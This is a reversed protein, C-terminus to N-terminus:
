VAAAEDFNFVTLAASLFSITIITIVACFVLATDALFALTCVDWGLIFVVFWETWLLQTPGATSILSLRFIEHVGFQLDNLYDSVGYAGHSHPQGM